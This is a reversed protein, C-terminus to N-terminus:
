RFKLSLDNNVCRKHTKVRLSKLFLTDVTSKLSICDFSMGLSSNWKLYSMSNKSQRCVVNM